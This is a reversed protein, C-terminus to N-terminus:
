HFDQWKPTYAFRSTLTAKQNDEVTHYHSCQETASTSPRCCSWCVNSHKEYSLADTLIGVSHTWKCRPKHLINAGDAGNKRIKSVKKGKSNFWQKLAAIWRVSFVRELDPTIRTQIYRDRITRWLIPHKRLHIKCGKLKRSSLLLPEWLKSNCIVIDIWYTSTYSKLIYPYWKRVQLVCFDLM